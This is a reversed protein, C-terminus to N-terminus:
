KVRTVHKPDVLQKPIKYVLSTPLPYGSIDNTPIRLM